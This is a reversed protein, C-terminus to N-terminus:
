DTRNWHFNPGLTLLCKGDLTDNSLSLHESFTKTKRGKYTVEDNISHLFYGIVRDFFALAIPDGGYKIIAKKGLPTGVILLM